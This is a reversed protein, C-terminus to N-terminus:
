LSMDTLNLLNGPAKRIMNLSINTGEFDTEAPGTCCNGRVGGDDTDDAKNNGAGVREQAAACVMPMGLADLFPLFAHRLFM